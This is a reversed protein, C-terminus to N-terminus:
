LLDNIGLKGKKGIPEADIEIGVGLANLCCNIPEIKRSGQDKVQELLFKYDSGQRKLHIATTAHDLWQQNGSFSERTIHYLNDDNVDGQIVTKKDHHLFMISCEEGFLAQWRLYVQAPINADSVNFAHVKALTSIIVLKYHYKAQRELLEQRISSHEWFPSMCNFGEGVGVDFKPEYGAAKWREQIIWWRTDIDIYLVSAPDGTQMGLFDTGQVVADALAWSLPSKGVGSKGYVFIIGGLPVIPNVLFICKPPVLNKFENPTYIKLSM